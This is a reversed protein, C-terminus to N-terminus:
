SRKRKLMLAGLGLLALTAPEPVLIVNDFDVEYGDAFDVALLRIELPDGLQAPSAGSNYTLIAKSWREDTMPSAGSASALLAGGALLEIRYDGTWGGNYLVPNGVLASLIYETDAQLTDSLVQSLGCDYGVYSTTWAVNEGDPAVGGYGTAADPDYGGADGAYTVWVGPDALDYYGGTWGAADGWDGDAYAPDEFSPNVITIAAAGTSTSLVFLAAAVVTLFTKGRRNKMM